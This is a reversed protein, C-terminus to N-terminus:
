GLRKIGRLAPAQSEVLAALRAMSDANMTYLVQFEYALREDVRAEGEGMWTALWSRGETGVYLLSPFPYIGNEALLGTLYYIDRPASILAGGVGAAELRERFRQQRMRCGDQTLM